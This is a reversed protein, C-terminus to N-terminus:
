EDEVIMIEVRRNQQRGKESANDAVPVDSGKGETMIREKKIGKSYLYSKVAQARELSLKKNREEAGVNDTHGEITLKYKPHDKLYDALLDLLPLVKESLDSKNVEFTIDPLTIQDGPSFTDSKQLTDERVTDQTALPQDTQCACESSDKIPYVFVNDLYVYAGLGGGTNRKETKSNLQREKLVTNSFNDFNGIILFQEDGKSIYVNKVLYWKSDDIFDNKNKIQPELKLSKMSFKSVRKVSLHLGINKTFFRQRTASKTYFGVCYQKGKKLPSKLETQIYERYEGKKSHSGKYRYAISIGIYGLGSQPYSYGAVNEPVSSLRKSKDACCFFDPTARTPSNWHPTVWDVRDYWGQRLNRSQWDFVESFDNNSVLNQSSLNSVFLTLFILSYIKM